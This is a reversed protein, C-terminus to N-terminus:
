GGFWAGRWLRRMAVAALVMAAVLVNAAWAGVAPPVLGQQGASSFVVFLAYYGFSAVLGLAVVAYPSRVVSAVVLAALAMVPIAASQALKMHWATTLREVGAGSQRLRDIEEGLRWLSVSELSTKPDMTLFSKPDMALPFTVTDSHSESLRSVDVERVRTLRWEGPQADVAEADLIRQPQGAADMVYVRVGEGKRTVPFLRQVWVVAQKERFWVDSLSRAVLNRGRVEENWIREALGHGVVGLGQSLLFHGIAVVTAYVLFIRQWSWPAVAAARLAILERARGMLAMQVGVAVVFAGPFIQALVFPCRYLVYLGLLRLSVGAELFNDLRDFVEVFLYVGLGIGLVLALLFLNRRVLLRALVTM